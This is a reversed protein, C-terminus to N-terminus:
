VSGFSVTSRTCTSYLRVKALTITVGYDSCQILCYGFRVTGNCFMKLTQKWHNCKLFPQCKVGGLNFLMPGESSVCVVIYLRLSPDKDRLFQFPSIIVFTFM